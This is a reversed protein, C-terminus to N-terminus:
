MEKFKKIWTTNEYLTSSNIRSAPNRIESKLLEKISNHIPKPMRQSLTIKNISNLDIDIEIAPQNTEGQWLIRYENEYRYPWRKIFPIDDVAITNNRIENM